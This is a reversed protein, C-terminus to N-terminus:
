AHEYKLILVMALQLVPSKTNSNSFDRAKNTVNSISKPALLGAQTARLALLLRTIASWFEHERIWMLFNNETSVM